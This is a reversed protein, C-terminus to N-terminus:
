DPLIFTSGDEAERKTFTGELEVDELDEMRVDM